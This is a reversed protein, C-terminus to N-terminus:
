IFKGMISKTLGGVVPLEPDEEEKSAKVVGMITFVVGAIYVATGLLGLIGIGTIARLIGNIFSIGLNLAITSIWIVISQACHFKTKKDTDPQVLFIVAAIWIFYGLIAKAKESM